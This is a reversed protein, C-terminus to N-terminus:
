PVPQDRRALFQKQCTHSDAQLRDFDPYTRLKVLLPDHNFAEEACYNGAIALQLLRVAL